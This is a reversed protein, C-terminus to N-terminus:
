LNIINDDLVIYAYKNAISSLFKTYADILIVHFEISLLYNFARLLVINTLYDFLEIGNMQSQLFFFLLFNVNVNVM